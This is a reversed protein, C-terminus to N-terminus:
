KDVVPYRSINIVLDFEDYHRDFVARHCFGDIIGENNDFLSRMAELNRHIVYLRLDPSGYRERFKFIYNANICTDGIGGAPCFAINLKDSEIFLDDPIKSDAYKRKEMDVAKKITKIFGIARISRIGSGILRKIGM